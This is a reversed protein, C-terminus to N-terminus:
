MHWTIANNLFKQCLNSSNQLFGHRELNSVHPFPDSLCNPCQLGTKPTFDQPPASHLSGFQRPDLNSSKELTLNKQFEDLELSICNWIKVNWFSLIECTKLTVFYFETM